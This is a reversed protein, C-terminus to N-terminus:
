IYQHQEKEEGNNDKAFMLLTQTFHHFVQLWLLRLIHESSQCLSCKRIHGTLAMYTYLTCGGYKYKMVLVEEVTSISLACHVTYMKETLYYEQEIICDGEEM